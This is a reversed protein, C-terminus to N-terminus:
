LEKTLFVVLETDIKRKSVKMLLGVYLAVSSTMLNGGYYLISIATRIRVYNLYDIITYGTNEKFVDCVIINKDIVLVHYKIAEYIESPVIITNPEQQFIIKYAWIKNNIM